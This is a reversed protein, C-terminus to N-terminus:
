VPELWPRTVRIANTNSYICLLSNSILSIIGEKKEKLPAKGANILAEIIHKLSTKTPFQLYFIM